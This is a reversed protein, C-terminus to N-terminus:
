LLKEPPFNRNAIHNRQFLRSFLRALGNRGCAKRAGDEDQESLCPRRLAELGGVLQIRLRSPAAIALKLFYLVPVIKNSAHRTLNECITTRTKPFKTLICNFLSSYHSNLIGIKMIWIIRCFMSNYHTKNKTKIGRHDQTEASNRQTGRHEETNKQTRRHEETKKNTTRQEKNKTKM